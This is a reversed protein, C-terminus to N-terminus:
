IYNYDRSYKELYAEVKSIINDINRSEYLEIPKEWDNNQIVKVCYQGKPENEPYWGVDIGLQVKKRKRQIYMIDETLNLWVEDNDGAELLNIYMFNNVVMEWGSPIALKVFEYM